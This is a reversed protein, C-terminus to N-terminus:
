VKRHAAPRPAQLMSSPKTSVRNMTGDLSGVRALVGIVATVAQAAGALWGPRAWGADMASVRAGAGGFAAVLVLSGM